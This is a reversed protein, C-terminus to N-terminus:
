VPPGGTANQPEPLTTLFELLKEAYKEVRAEGVGDVRGLDARTRCRLQVFRALQENTFVTYIPIAERTAIEKRLGRLRPFVEFEAPALIEKYDVRSRGNLLKPSSATGGEVLYHVCVAWFSNAGQDVWQRDVALVKHSGLFPNHEAEAEAISRVPVTFFRFPM